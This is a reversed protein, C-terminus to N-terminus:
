RFYMVLLLSLFQCSLLNKLTVYRHSFTFFNFISSITHNTISDINSYDSWKYPQPCGRWDHVFYDNRNQIASPLACRKTYRARYFICMNVIVVTNLYQYTECTQFPFFSITFRLGFTLYSFYPVSCEYMKKVRTRYFYHM